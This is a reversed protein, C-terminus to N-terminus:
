RTELLTTGNVSDKSFNTESAYFGLFNQRKCYASFTGFHLPPHSRLGFEVADSMALRSLEM